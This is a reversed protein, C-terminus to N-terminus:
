EAVKYFTNILELLERTSKKPGSIYVKMDDVFVLVNVEEKGVKIM